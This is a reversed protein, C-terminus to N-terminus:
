AKRCVVGPGKEGWVTGSKFTISVPLAKPSWEEPAALL